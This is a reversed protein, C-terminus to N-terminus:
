GLNYYITKAIDGYWRVVERDKPVPITFNMSFPNSGNLFQFLIHDLEDGDAQIFDIEENVLTPLNKFPIHTEFQNRGDRGSLSKLVVFMSM